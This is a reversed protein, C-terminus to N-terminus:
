RRVEFDMVLLDALSGINNKKFAEHEPHTLYVDRAARDRFTVIVARQFGKSFGETSMDPGEEISLIGPIKGQLARFESILDAARAPTVDDKLKLLVIHRVTGPPTGTGGHAAAQCGAAAIIAALGAAITGQPIPQILTMDGPPAVM